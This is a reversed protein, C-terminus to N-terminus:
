WKQRAKGSSEGLRPGGKLRAIYLKILKKGIEVSVKKGVVVM